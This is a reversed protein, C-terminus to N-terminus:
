ASVQQVATPQTDNRSSQQLTLHPGEAAQVHQAHQPASVQVLDGSISSIDPESIVRQARCHGIVTM